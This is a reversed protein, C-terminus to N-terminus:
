APYTERVLLSIDLPKISHTLAGLSIRDVGTQAVQDINDLYRGGLTVRFTTGQRGGAPFVYGLRTTLEQASAVSALVLLIALGRVLLWRFKSM